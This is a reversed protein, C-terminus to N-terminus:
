PTSVSQLERGILALGRNDQVLSLPGSQKIVLCESGPRVTLLQAAPEGVEGQHRGVVAEGRQGRGVM